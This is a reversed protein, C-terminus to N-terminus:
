QAKKANGITLIGTTIIIAVTIPAGIITDIGIIIVAGIIREYYYAREVFARPATALTRV